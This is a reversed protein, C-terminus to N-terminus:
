GSRSRKSIRSADQNVSGIFWESIFSEWGIVLRLFIDEAVTKRREPPATLASQWAADGADLVDVFATRTKTLDMKRAMRPDDWVAAGLRGAARGYAVVPVRRDRRLAVPGSSRPCLRRFGATLPTKLTADLATRWSTYFGHERTSKGRRHTLGVVNSEAARTSRGVTAGPTGTGM